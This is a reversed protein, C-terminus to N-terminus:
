IFNRLMKKLCLKSKYLQARSSAESIGLLDAIERHTYGDVLFLNFILRLSVPLKQLGTLLDSQTIKEARDAEICYQNYMSEHLETTLLKKKKLIDLCTSTFIRRAWGEFSGENRFASLNSYLKIFSEQFADNADHENGMYRMCIGYMKDSLLDYIHRFSQRDGKSAKDILIENIHYESLDSEMERIMMM